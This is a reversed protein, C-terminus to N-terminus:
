GTAREVAESDGFQDEDEQQDSQIGYGFKSIIFCLLEPNDYQLVNTLNTSQLTQPPECLAGVELLQELDNLNGRKLIQSFLTGTELSNGPSVVASSFFKEPGINTKITSMRNALDMLIPKTVEPYGDESMDSDYEEDSGDSDFPKFNERPEDPKEYQALAISIIVKATDWKRAMVAVGLPPSYGTSNYVQQLRADPIIDAVIQLYTAHKDRKGGKPPLCLKEITQNDGMWCAEFLRAYNEQLHSSVTESQYISRYIKYEVPVLSSEPLPSAIMGFSRPSNYIRSAHAFSWNEVETETVTPHLDRVSKGGNKVILSEIDTYWKLQKSATTYIAETLFSQVSKVKDEAPEPIAKSKFTELAKPIDHKYQVTLWEIFTTTSTVWTTHPLVDPQGLGTVKLEAKDLADLENKAYQICARIRDLITLKTPSLGRNLDVGLKVLPFVLDNRQALAAEIPFLTEQLWQNPQKQPIYTYSPNARYRADWAKDFMEETIDAKAGSSLLLATMARNNSSIASVLPSITMQSGIQPLFDVATRANPDVQLFTRVLSVAGAIVAQHFVTKLSSDTATCSAGSELLRTAIACATEED